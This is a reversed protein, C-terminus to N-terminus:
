QLLSKTIEIKKQKLWRVYNANCSEKLLDNSVKFDGFSRCNVKSIYNKITKSIINLEKSHDWDSHNGSKEKLGFDALINYKITDMIHISNNLIQAYEKTLNAGVSNFSEKLSKIRHEMRFDLPKNNSYGGKNNCTRNWIYSHAEKAGLISYVRSIHRFISNAYNKNGNNKFLPLMIKELIFTCLGDGTKFSNYSVKHLISFLFLTKVYNFAKDDKFDEDILKNRKNLISCEKLHSRMVTKLHTEYSCINCSYKKNKKILSLDAFNCEEEEEEIENLPYTPECIFDQYSNITREKHPYHSFDFNQFDPFNTLTAPLLEYLVAKVNSELIELSIPKENGFMDLYKTIITAEGCCDFFDKCAYYDDKAHKLNKIKENKISHALNKLSGLTNISNEGNLKDLGVQLFAMNLHFIEHRPIIGNLNNLPKTSDEDILGKQSSDLVKETLQDGTHPIRQVIENNDVPVFKEQFEGNIILVNKTSNESMCYLDGPSEQTKEKMEETYQHEKETIIFEGNFLSKNIIIITQHNIRQFLYYKEEPSIQYEKLPIEKVEKYIPFNSLKNGSVRDQTIMGATWDLSGNNNSISHHRSDIRINMNDYTGTYGPPSNLVLELAEEENKAQSM